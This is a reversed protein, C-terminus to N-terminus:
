EMGMWVSSELLTMFWHQNLGKFTGHAEGSFVRSNLCGLLYLLTVTFLKM